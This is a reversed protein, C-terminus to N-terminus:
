ALAPSSAAKTLAQSTSTSRPAASAAAPRATLAVTSWSVPPWRAASTRCRSPPAPATLTSGSAAPTQRMSAARSASPSSTLPTPHPPTPNQDGAGLADSFHRISILLKDVATTETGRQRTNTQKPKAIDPRSEKKGVRRGTRDKQTQSFSLALKRATFLLLRYPLPTFPPPHTAKRFGNVGPKM